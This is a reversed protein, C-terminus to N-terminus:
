EDKLLWEKWQEKSMNTRLVNPFLVDYKKLKECAKDLAKELQINKDILQQVLSKAKQYDEDIHKEHVLGNADHYSHFYDTLTYLAEQYKDIM